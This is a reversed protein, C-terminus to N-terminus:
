WARLHIFKGFMSGQFSKTIQVANDAEVTIAMTIGGFGRRYRGIDISKSEGPDLTDITGTKDFIKWLPIVIFKRNVYVTWKINKATINGRNTIQFDVHRRAVAVEQISLISVVINKTIENTNNDEDTVALKVNYNGQENWNYTLTKNHGM